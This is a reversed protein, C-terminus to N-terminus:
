STEIVETTLFQHYEHRYIKMSRLNNKWNTIGPVKNNYDPSNYNNINDLLCAGVATTYKIPITFWFLDTMFKGDVPSFKYGVDDYIYLTIGPPMLIYNINTFGFQVLDPIDGQFRVERKYNECQDFALISNVDSNCMEAIIKGLKISEIYQKKLDAKIKLNIAKQEIENQDAGRNALDTKYQMCLNQQDTLNKTINTLNKNEIRIQTDLEECDAKILSLTRNLKYLEIQNSYDLISGADKMFSISDGSVVHLCGENPYLGKGKNLLDQKKNDDLPLQGPETATMKYVKSDRVPDIMKAKGEVKMSSIMDAGSNMYKPVDIAAPGKVQWNQGAFDTHQAATFTQGEPVCVSRIIDNWEPVDNPLNKYVSGSPINMKDGSQGYGSFVVTTKCDNTEDIYKGILNCKKVDFTSKAENPLICGNYTRWMDHHNAQSPTMMAVAKLTNKDPIRLGNTELLNVCTPNSEKYNLM